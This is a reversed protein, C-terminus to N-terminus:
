RGGPSRGRARAALRRAQGRERSSGWAQESFKGVQPDVREPHPEERSSTSWSVWRDLPARAEHDCLLLVHLNSSEGLSTPLLGVDGTMDTHVALRDVVHQRTARRRPHPDRRTRVREVPELGIHTLAEDIVRVHPRRRQEVLDHRQAVVATVLGERPMQAVPSQARMALRAVRRVPPGVRDDIVRGTHLDLPVPHIQRARRPEVTAGGMQQHAGQRVRAPEPAPQRVRHVLRVQDVPHVAHEFAQAAGRVPPPDIPHGRHDHRAGVPDLGAEDRHRLVVARDDIRARGAVAVAFTHHLLVDVESGLPPPAGRRDGGGGVGLGTEVPEAFLGRIGAGPRPRGRRDALEGIALRQRRQRRHRERRHEFFLSVDGVVRQDM